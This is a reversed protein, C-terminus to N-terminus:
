IGIAISLPVFGATGNFMADYGARVNVSVNGFVDFDSGIELGVFPDTSSVGTGFLNYASAFGSLLPLRQDPAFSLRITGMNIFYLGAQLGVFPTIPGFEKIHCRVM